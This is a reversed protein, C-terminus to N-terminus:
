KLSVLFGSFKENEVYNQKSHASAARTLALTVTLTFNSTHM